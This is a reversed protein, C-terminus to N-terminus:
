YSARAGLDIRHQARCRPPADAMLSVPDAETDAIRGAFVSVYTPAGGKVADVVAQMQELTFIARVNLPIGEQTLQECLPVASEGRM